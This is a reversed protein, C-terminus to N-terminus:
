GGDTKLLEELELIKVLAAQTLTQKSTVTAVCPPGKAGQRPYLLDIRQIQGLEHKLGEMSLAPWTERVQRHLYQLLGVGLLCCFAHVRIKSDTWHYLPGWGLWDGGKLGRFVQEVPQQGQYAAAVEAPTWDTRNTVLMTRGFREELLKQMAAGDIGFRVQWSRDEARRLEWNLVQSVFNPRLWGEIRKRLSAESHRAQPKGVERALSRLKQTAKALSESVSHFQESAFGASYRLVALYEGGHVLTREGAVSVGPEDALSELDEVARARLSEPAQGWPLAAIWGLGSAQLQLTNDLAASGKDLVLTVSDRDIGAGDLLRQIRALCAPLEDRDPVNGPYVHHCLSLGHEADLCYSLGVQRLDRRKQKNHGRQPLKCRQNTSAIWTAFNTTDYALVRRSALQRDLFARLLALQAQELQDPRPERLSDSVDISDFQDWFAQSSFREPAFGWLDILVSNRYWEAIRTKPGPECVRHFAALLLFHPLSPGKPPAPWISLLADFAGSRRAAQWLAAPLGGDRATAELPVPSARDKVLKAVREATGLYTQHTIRPKGDVRGSTVVYYYTRNHKKKRIISAM